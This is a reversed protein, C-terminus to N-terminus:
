MGYKEFLLESMEDKYDACSHTPPVDSLMKVRESIQIDGFPSPASSAFSATASNTLNNKGLAYTRLLATIQEELWKSMSKGGLVSPNVDNVLKDDLAISFTCM